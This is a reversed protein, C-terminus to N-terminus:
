EAVSTTNGFDLDLNDPLFASGVAAFIFALLILPLLALALNALMSLVGRAYKEAVSRQQPNKFSLASEPGHLM